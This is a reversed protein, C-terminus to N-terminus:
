GGEDNEDSFGEFDVGGSGDVDEFVLGLLDELDGEDDCFDWEM